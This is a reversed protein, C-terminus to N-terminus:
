LVAGFRKKHGLKRTQVPVHKRNRFWGIYNIHVLELDGNTRFQKPLSKVMDGVITKKIHRHHAMLNRDTVSVTMTRELSGSNPVGPQLTYKFTVHYQWSRGTLLSILKDFSLKPLKM